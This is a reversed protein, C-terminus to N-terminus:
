FKPRFLSMLHLSPNMQSWCKKLAHEPLLSEKDSDGVLEHAYKDLTNAPLGVEDLLKNLKATTTPESHHLNWMKSFFVSKLKPNLSLISGFIMQVVTTNRSKNTFIRALFLIKRQNARLDGVIIASMNECSSEGVLGVIESAFNSSKINYYLFPVSPRQLLGRKEPFSHSLHQVQPLPCDFLPKSANIVLKKM